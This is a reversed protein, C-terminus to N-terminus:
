NRLAIYPASANKSSRVVGVVCVCVGGGGGGLFFLLFLFLFSGRMGNAHVIICLDVGVFM